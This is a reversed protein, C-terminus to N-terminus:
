FQGDQAIQHAGEWSHSRIDAFLGPLALSAAITFPRKPDFAARSIL